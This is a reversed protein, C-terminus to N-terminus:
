HRAGLLVTQSSEVPDFSIFPAARPSSRRRDAVSASTEREANDHRQSLPMGFQRSHRLRRARPARARDACEERIEGDSADKNTQKPSRRNGLNRSRSKRQQVRMGLPFWPALERCSHVLWRNSHEGATIEYIASASM